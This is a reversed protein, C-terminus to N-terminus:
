QSEVFTDTQNGSGFAFPIYKNQRFLAMIFEFGGGYIRVKAKNASM